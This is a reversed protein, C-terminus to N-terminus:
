GIKSVTNKIHLEKEKACDYKLVVLQKQLYGKSFYYYFFDCFFKAVFYYNKLEKKENTKEIFKAFFIGFGIM